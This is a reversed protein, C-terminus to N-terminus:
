KFPVVKKCPKGGPLEPRNSWHESSSDACDTFTEYNTELNNNRHACFSQVMLSM